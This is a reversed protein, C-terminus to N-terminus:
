FSFFPPVGPVVGVGRDSMSGPDCFIYSTFPPANFPEVKAADVSKLYCRSNGDQFIATNCLRSEACLDLCAQSNAVRKGSGPLTPGPVDTGPLSVNCVDEMSGGEVAPITTTEDVGIGGGMDGPGCFIYSTFPASNAAEVTAVNVSKLYCRSNRNLFIAANCTATAACRGLCAQNDAATRGSGPLTPGPVDTGPILVNCKPPPPPTVINVDDPDCFIYSTFRQDNAPQVTAVDVSKLYCRDNGTHRIASNCTDIETCLDLCSQNDATAQGSGPLNGGPM